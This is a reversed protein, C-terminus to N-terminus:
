LKSSHINQCLLPIPTLVKQFLSHLYKIITWRTFVPVQNNLFDITGLTHAANSSFLRISVM